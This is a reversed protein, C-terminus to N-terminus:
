LETLSSEAGINRSPNTRQRLVKWLGIMFGSSVIYSIGAFIQPYLYARPTSLERLQLTIVEACSTPIIITAWALSLLSQLNKLGAVEASLPGITMWFVGLIAGCLISFFITLGFSNAPLWLIFCLLGCLFTLCGAMVVSSVRDGAIGTIPRGIATGLNLCGVIDTAQKDSLGISLAFDSLSFLLAIYGFMSVFAWLLLLIVARDRLLSVDLALQTPNIHHNRRTLYTALPALLMACSFNLGGILGFELPRTSPFDESSIYKSLYVGFSATLGWTFANLIFCSGVIVWGYGGDPPESDAEAQDLAEPFTTEEQTM